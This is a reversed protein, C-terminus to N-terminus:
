IRVRSSIFRYLLVIASTVVISFITFLWYNDIFSKCIFSKIPIELFYFSLSQVGVFYLFRSRIDIYKVLWVIIITFSLSELIDIKIYRYFLVYAMMSLLIVIYDPVKDIAVFYKAVIMGLPFNLISNYWWPGTSYKAMLICYIIAIGMVLPLRFRENTIHRFVLFAMVYTGVIVKYFWTERGPSCLTFFEYILSLKFSEPKWVTFCIIYVIWLFLFPVILKKMQKLLWKYELPSNRRMSFYLGFGSLFFFVGTALYGWHKVSYLSNILLKGGGSTFDVSNYRIFSHHFFIMLM